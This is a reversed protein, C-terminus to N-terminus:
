EQERKQRDSLAVRIQEATMGCFRKRLAFLTNRSVDWAWAIDALSAGQNAEIFQMVDIIEQVTLLSSVGTRGRVRQIRRRRYRPILRTNVGRQALSQSTHGLADILRREGDRYHRSIVNRRVETVGALYSHLGRIPDKAHEKAHTLCFRLVRFEPLSLSVGDDVVSLSPAIYDVPPPEEKVPHAPASRVRGGTASLNLESVKRELGAGEGRKTEEDGYLLHTGYFQRHKRRYDRIWNPIVGVWRDFLYHMPHAIDGIDYQTLLVEAIVSQLDAIMDSLSVQGHSGLKEILRRASKILKPRVMRLLLKM